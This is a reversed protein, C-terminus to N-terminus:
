KNENLAPTDRHIVHTDYEGAFYDKLVKAVYTSRHQGGSCAIGINYNVRGEKVMDKLQTTLFDEIRQVLEHTKPFSELYDIVKQDYGTFEKLDDVWFPNPISRVDFIMDIGAPVGNKLGFSIFNVNLVGKRDDSLLDYIMQRMSKISLNSTDITVDVDPSLNNADVIDEEVAKEISI